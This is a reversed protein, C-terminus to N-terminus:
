KLIRNRLIYSVGRRWSDDNNGRIDASGGGVLAGTEADRLYLTFSLILNSTKQFEGTMALDAGLEKAFQSDCGNCHALNAYLDAKQLIPTVDVFEFRGSHTLAEVIQAEAATRRAEEEPSVAEMSTNLLTVGFFAVKQPDARATDAATAAYLCLLLSAILRM